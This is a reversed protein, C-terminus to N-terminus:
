LVVWFLSHLFVIVDDKETDVLINKFGERGVIRLRPFLLWWSASPVPSLIRTGAVSVCPVGSLPSLGLDSRAPLHPLAPPLPHM